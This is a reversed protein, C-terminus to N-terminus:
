KVVVQIAREKPGDFECLMISQWTGLALKGNSIPVTKGSGFFASKLHAEANDDILNHAYDSKPALEEFFRLYDRELNPEHEGIIIAATAHPLSVLCIGEKVKSKEVAGEVLKTIDVVQQKASTKITSTIM